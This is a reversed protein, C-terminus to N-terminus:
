ERRTKVTFCRGIAGTIALDRKPLFARKWVKTTLSKYKRGNIENVSMFGDAILWDIIISRKIKRGDYGIINNIREIIDSITIGGDSYPFNDLEGDKIVFPAKAKKGKAVYEGRCVKDLVNSVFYLCRSIRVNNVVEGDPVPEGNLPNVGRALSDIFSKAYQIEEIETM